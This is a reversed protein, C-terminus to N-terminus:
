ERELCKEDDNELIDYNMNKENDTMIIAAICLYYQQRRSCFM